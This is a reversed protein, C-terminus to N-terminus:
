KMPPLTINGSTEMVGNICYIHEVGVAHVSIERVGGKDSCFHQAKLIDTQNTVQYCGTLMLALLVAAIMKNM